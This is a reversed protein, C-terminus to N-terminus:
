RLDVASSQADEDKALLLEGDDMHAAVRVLLRCRQVHVHCTAQGGMLGSVPNECRVPEVAARGDRPHRGVTLNDTRM